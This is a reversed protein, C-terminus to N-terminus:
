TNKRGIIPPVRKSKGSKIRDQIDVGLGTPIGTRQQQPHAATQDSYREVHEAQMESMVFGDVTDLRQRLERKYIADEYARLAVGAFLLWLALCVSYRLLWFGIVVCVRDSERQQWNTLIAQITQMSGTGEFYGITGSVAHFTNTMGVVSINSLAIDPVVVFASAVV